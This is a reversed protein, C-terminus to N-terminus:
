CGLGSTHPGRVNPPVQVTIQVSNATQISGSAQINLAGPQTFNFPTFYGSASSWSTNIASIISDDANIVVSYASANDSNEIRM